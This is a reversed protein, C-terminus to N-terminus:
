GEEIDIGNKVCLERVHVELSTGAIVAAPDKFDTDLLVQAMELYSDYTAAHVEELLSQTWGAKLDDRLGVAVQYLRRARGSSRDFRYKNLQHIYASGPLAIREIAAELRNAIFGFSPTPGEDFDMKKALEKYREILEDLQGVMKEIDAM